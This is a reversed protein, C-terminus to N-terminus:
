LTDNGVFDFAAVLDLQTAANFIYPNAHSVVETTGNKLWARFQYQAAATARLTVETGIEYTGGGTVTGGEGLATAFIRVSGSPTPDISQNNAGMTTGRTQTFQYDTYNIARTAVLKALDSGNQVNLNGYQATARESTDIMGYAYVVLDGSPLGVFRAVFYGNTLTQDNRNEVVQSTYFSLKGEQTKIFVNYIVRSVNASPEESFFVDLNRSNGAITATATIQPLGLNGETLQLNEYSVQAVGNLAYSNGFNIKTFKNRASVLGSKQMALSPAVSAAIQSMLKMRARQDVQATTSPNAVHPNYERAITQGGSTSFVISGIKGMTKGFLSTVKGM